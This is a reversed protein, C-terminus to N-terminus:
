PWLLSDTSGHTDPGWLEQGPYPNPGADGGDQPDVGQYRGIPSAFDNMLTYFTRTSLETIPWPRTEETRSAAPIPVQRIRELIRAGRPEWM